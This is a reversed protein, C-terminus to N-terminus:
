CLGGVKDFGVEWWDLWRVRGLLLLWWVMVVFAAGLHKPRTRTLSLVLRVRSYVKASVKFNSLLIFRELKRSFSYQKGHM